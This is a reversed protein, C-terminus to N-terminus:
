ESQSLCAELITIRPNDADLRKYINLAERLTERAKGEDGADAYNVGQNNLLRCTAIDLSDDGQSLKRYIALM